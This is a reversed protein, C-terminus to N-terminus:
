HTHLYYRINELNGLDRLDRHAKKFSFVYDDFEAIAEDRSSVFDSDASRIKSDREFTLGIVRLKFNDLWPNELNEYANIFEYKAQNIAVKRVHELKKLEERLAIKKASIIPLIFRDLADKIARKGVKSGIANLKPQNDWYLNLFASNNQDVSRFKDFAKSFLKAGLRGVYDESNIIHDKDFPDVIELDRLIELKPNDRAIDTYFQKVEELTKPLDLDARANDVATFATVTLLLTLLLRKMIM